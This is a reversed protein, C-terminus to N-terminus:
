GQGASGGRRRDFADSRLYENAKNSGASWTWEIEVGETALDEELWGFRRLVLSSPNYYAYDLKITDPTEQAAGPQPALAAVFAFLPLILLTLASARLWRSKL